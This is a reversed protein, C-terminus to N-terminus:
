NGPCAAIVQEIAARSGDLSIFGDVGLTPMSVGVEANAQFAEIFPHRGDWVHRLLAFVGTADYYTAVDSYVQEPFTYSIAAYGDPFGSEAPEQAPTFGILFASDYCLMVFTGFGECRTSAEPTEGNYGGDSTFQWPTCEQAAGVSPGFTLAVLVGTAFRM